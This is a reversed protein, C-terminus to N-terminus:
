RAAGNFVAAAVAEIQSGVVALVAAVHDVGDAADGAACADAVRCVASQDAVALVVHPQVAILDAVEAALCGGHAADHAQDVARGLHALADVIGLHPAAQAHAADDAAHVFLALRLQAIYGIVAVHVTRVAVGFDATCAAKDTNGGLAARHAQLVAIVRPGDVALCLAVLIVGGIIIGGSGAGRAADDAVPACAAHLMHLAAAFVGKPAVSRSGAGVAGVGDARIPDGGLDVGPAAHPFLEGGGPRQQALKDVDAVAAVLPILDVAGM